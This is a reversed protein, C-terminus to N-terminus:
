CVQLFADLEAVNSISRQSSSTPNNSLRVTQLDVETSAFLRGAEDSLRSWAQQEFAGFSHFSPQTAPGPAASQQITSM